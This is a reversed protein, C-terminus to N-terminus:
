ESRDVQDSDGPNDAIIDLILECHVDESDEGAQQMRLEGIWVTEELSELAQLLGCIQAFSGACAMEVPLRCTADYPLAAQPEFRTTTAGSEKALRNIRGFLGSMDNETPASQEWGDVYARTVDLQQRTAEIAPGFMEAQEISEDAAALEARLEDLSAEGPLYSFYAYAGVAGVALAISTWHRSTLNIKM